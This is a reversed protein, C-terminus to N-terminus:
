AAPRTVSPDRRAWLLIRKFSFFHPHTDPLQACLRERYRALFDAFMLESLRDRIPVLATGRMWEVVDERSTLHHAYVQLRVHQEAFGLQDLLEAYAAPDLVAPAPLDALAQRFPPEACLAAAITQSPHDFNAPVQIALQGDEALLTRLRAFLARHGPVWHLAAHSFVLDFAAPADFAALDGREFRLGGGGLPLARELMEASSDLGLTTAASARQHLERTLEGTGCGLDVIRMGARPRILAFLDEFPQARQRRFRAYQEPDWPSV